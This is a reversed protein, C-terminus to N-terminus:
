RVWEKLLEHLKDFFEKKRAESFSILSNWEKSGDSKETAFSPSAIFWGGTKKRLIKWEHFIIGMQPLWIDFVAIAKDNPNKERYNKIEM